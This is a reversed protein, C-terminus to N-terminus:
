LFGECDKVKGDSMNKIVPNIIAEPEMLPANPYRVNPKSAVVFIRKSHFVQPAALGVGSLKCM